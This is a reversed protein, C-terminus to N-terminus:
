VFGMLAKAIKHKLLTHDIGLLALNRMFCLPILKNSFVKVLNDTLGIIKRHEKIRLKEYSKLLKESGFDAADKLQQQIEKVLVAVDRLGLNFGQGAIPHLTHAANGIVIAREVHISDIQLLFLPFCQRSGAWSFKGLRYGFAKQLHALFEKENLKVITEAMDPKVTWVLSFASTTIPLLALPGFETFREYATNDHPRAVGINAVIATQQYDSKSSHLNLMKRLASNSGDASILLSCSLLEVTENVALEIKRKNDEVFTQLVKTSLFQQINQYTKLKEILQQQLTQLMIVFGLCPLHYDSAHIHTFGFHGRDSVHVKKIPTAHRELENWIGFESFITQSGYALALARLDKEVGNTQKQILLPAADIIAIKLNMEALAIALVAGTLGGGVIIIDFQDECKKM